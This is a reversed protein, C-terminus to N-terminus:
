FATRPEFLDLVAAELDEASYKIYKKPHKESAIYSGFRRCFYRYALILKQSIDIRLENRLQIDPVLWTAQTRCVEEFMAAFTKFRKRLVSKSVGGPSFGLSVNLGEIRLCNLVKM